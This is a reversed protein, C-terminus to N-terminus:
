QAILRLTQKDGIGPEQSFNCVDQLSLSSLFDVVHMDLYPFRAEKGHDSVLGDDCGLNCEWLLSLDM